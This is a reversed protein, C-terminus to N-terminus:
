ISLAFNANECYMKYAYDRAQQMAVEIDSESADESLEFGCYFNFESESKLSEIQMVNCSETELHLMAVVYGYFVDTNVLDVHVYLSHTHFEAVEILDGSMAQDYQEQTFTKMNM